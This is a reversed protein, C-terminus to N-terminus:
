QVILTYTDMGPMQSLFATIIAKAEENAERLLGQEIAKAEMVDKEASIFQNYHQAPFLRAAARSLRGPSDYVTTIIELNLVRFYYMQNFGNQEGGYVAAVAFCPM